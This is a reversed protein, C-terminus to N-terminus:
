LRKGSELIPLGGETPVYIVQMQNTQLGEIWRYRLYAENDQLSEGIIKNAEAVGKARIIESKALAESKEIEALALFRAAEMKAEAELICIKRNEEAEIYAARGRGSAWYEGLSNCSTLMTICIGSFVCFFKNM